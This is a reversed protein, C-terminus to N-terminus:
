VDGDASLLVALPRTGDFAALVIAICATMPVALFAGAVGWLETWVALALLIALPSLNLSRGMVLPDVVNGVVFQIVGLVAAVSAVDGTNGFQVAAMAAPLLVSLISGIYPIFNLLVILVAWFAAFDLGKYAMFAYSLLGSVIGLLAKVALYSGIRADVDALLRRIRTEAAGDGVAKALKHAFSRRELMLFTAYMLVVVITAFVSSVSVFTSSLVRQMNIQAFVDHRLTAWTPENEIRMWTAARQIMGLLTEQYRPALARVSDINALIVVVIEVLTVGILAISLLLCLWSPLRPGVVPVRGILRAVGAVIFVVIFGFAFPVFVNRGTFLVWGVVCALAVGYFVFALRDKMSTDDTM